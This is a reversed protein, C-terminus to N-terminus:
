ERIEEIRVKIIGSELDAIQSFAAKSLDIIIGKKYIHSAPGFNNHRVVVCKNNEINCVKYSKGFDTKRMACTLDLENFKEGSATSTATYWSAMGAKPYAGPFSTSNLCGSIGLLYVMFLNFVIKNM